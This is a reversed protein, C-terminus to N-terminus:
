PTSERVVIASPLIMQRTTTRNELCDILIRCAAISSDFTKNDLSTLTPICIEGYISNDVGIVSVQDPIAIGLDYLARIGGTAILDVSYIIGDVDPHDKLVELTARKGDAATTGHSDYIWPETQGLLRIGRRFGEVKLECSPTHCDRVFALRKRGKEALLNVCAEVGHLEDSLVGYINPADLFANIMVIPVKSLHRKIAQAVSETQFSSGILVAGEVRRQVLISIAQARSEDDDGTNLIVCCYNLAALKREIYYAGDTHHINRIDAILIGIIRSSQSVLGRAAADPTYHYKKLLKQVKKRVEPNVGTKNNIVRSVSSASVGAEKAIDYITM